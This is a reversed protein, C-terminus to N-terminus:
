EGGALVRGKLKRWSKRLVVPYLSNAPLPVRPRPPLLRLSHRPRASKPAREVNAPVERMTVRTQLLSAQQPRFNVIGLDTM